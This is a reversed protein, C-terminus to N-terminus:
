TIVKESPYWVVLVKRTGDTVKEVRHPSINGIYNIIDGRKKFDVLKNNLYFDGGKFNDDLMIVFTNMSNADIHELVEGGVEYNVTHITLPNTNGINFINSLQKNLKHNYRSYFDIHVPKLKGTYEGYSVLGPALKKIKQMQEKEALGITQLLEELVKVDNETINYIM